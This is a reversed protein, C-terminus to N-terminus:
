LLDGFPSDITIRGEAVDGLGSYLDAKGDSRMVIGSTFACDRLDERMAETEPYCQKDGIIKMGSARHTDPDFIFSINLYVQQDVGQGDKSFYSRHGVVGVCGDRLLCCQNCGGWEGRGFLEPIIPAKEITEADLQDITDIVTFGIVAESGYVEEVHRGRPRTFVGLKGDALEVLRIDKMNVPGSTFLTMWDPRSGRYFYGYFAELEGRSKRVHTGGLILEGRVFTVYPDELPYAMGSPVAAYEDQGFREFLMTASSAFDERKEVRGFLYNKGQWRFPISCNYVDFGDAGHFRLLASEYIKRSKQFAKRAEMIDM